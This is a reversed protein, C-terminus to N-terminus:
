GTIAKPLETTHPRKGRVKPGAAPRVWAMDIEMGFPLSKRGLYTCYARGTADALERAFSVAEMRLYSPPCGWGAEMGKAWNRARKKQAKSLM